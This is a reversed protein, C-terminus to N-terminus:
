RHTFNITLFVTPKFLIKCSLLSRNHFLAFNHIIKYPLLTLYSLSVHQSFSTSSFLYKSLFQLMKKAIMIGSAKAFFIAELNSCCYEYIRLSVNMHFISETRPIRPWLSLIFLTNKKIFKKYIHLYLFKKYIHLYWILVRVILLRKHGLYGTDWFKSKGVRYRINCGM